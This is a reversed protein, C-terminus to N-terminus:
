SVQNFCSYILVSKKFFMWVVFILTKHKKWIISLLNNKETFLLTVTPFQTVSFQPTLCFFLISWHISNNLSELWTPWGWINLRGTEDVQTRKIIKLLIRNESFNLGTKWEVLSKSTLFKFVSEQPIFLHNM